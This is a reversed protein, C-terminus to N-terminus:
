HRENLQECKAPHPRLQSEGNGSNYAQADPGHNESDGALGVTESIQLKFSEILHPYLAVKTRYLLKADEIHDIDDPDKVLPDALDTEEPEGLIKDECGINNNNAADDSEVDDYVGHFMEKFLADTFLVLCFMIDGIPLIRKTM